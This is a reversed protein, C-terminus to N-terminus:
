GAAAAKRFIDAYTGAVSAVDYHATAHRRASEGTRKRLAADGALTRIPQVWDGGPEVLFGADSGRFIDINAGVASAVVPCGVAMYQIMKFGCKGWMVPENGLPMLGIDFSQLLALETERSWAVQEVRPHRELEPLRANSVIRFRAGDMSEVAQLLQPLFPRLSLFNTSTGMWGVIVADGAPGAARPHYARTDLVTPIITTKDPAGGQSALYSNGAIVHHSARIAADFARRRVPSTRGEPGLFIADDFDFVVNRRIAARLQEPLATHPLATRQLFVVDYNTSALTRAARKLRCALKYAPAWRRQLIDNYRDGYAYALTCQIGMSEFHPFFQEARFRSAPVQRGETLFIVKM